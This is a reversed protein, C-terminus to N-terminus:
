KVNYFYNSVYIEAAEAETFEKDKQRREKWLEICSKGPQLVCSFLM